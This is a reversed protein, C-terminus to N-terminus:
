AHARARAYGRTAARGLRLVRTILDKQYPMEPLDALATFVQQIEDIKKQCIACGSCTASLRKQKLMPYFCTGCIPQDPKKQNSHNM